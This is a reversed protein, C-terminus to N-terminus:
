SGAGPVTLGDLGGGGSEPVQSDDARLLAAQAKRKKPYKGTRWPAGRCRECYYRFKATTVFSFGCRGCARERSKFHPDASEPSGDDPPQYEPVGPM